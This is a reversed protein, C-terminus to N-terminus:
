TKLLVGCNASVVAVGKAATQTLTLTPTLTLGRVSVTVGNESTWKLAHYYHGGQCGNDSGETDCSVIHQESLSVLVGEEVAM